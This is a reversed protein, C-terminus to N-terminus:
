YICVKGDKDISFFENCFSEQVFGQELLQRPSGQLLGEGKTKMLWIKRSSRLALELEHTSYLVTKGMEKVLSELLRDLAIRNPLDLHSGPEDLVVLPTDQALAKAIMVKQREGDSLDNIYKDAFASLGVYELSAAIKQRDEKSLRGLRGTYPSRGLSVMQFVTCYEIKVNQTLVISFLKSQESVSLSDLAMNRFCIQGSLPPQLGCLTRLLTSKGSGNPGILAILEGAEVELNLGKQVCYATKGKIYGIALDKCRVM